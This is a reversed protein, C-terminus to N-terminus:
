NSQKIIKNCERALDEAGNCREEKVEDMWKKKYKRKKFIFLRACVTLNLSPHYM